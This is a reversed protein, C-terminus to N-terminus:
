PHCGPCWGLEDVCVPKESRRRTQCSAANTIPCSLTVFFTRKKKTACRRSRCRLARGRRCGVGTCRIALSSGHLRLTRARKAAFHELNLTFAAPLAFVAKDTLRRTPLNHLHRMLSTRLQPPPRTEKGVRCLEGGLDNQRKKPTSLDIAPTRTLALGVCLFRPLPLRFRTPRSPAQSCTLEL